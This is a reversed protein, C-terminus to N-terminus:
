KGISTQIQRRNIRRGGTGNGSDALSRQISHMALHPRLHDVEVAPVHRHLIGRRDTAADDILV